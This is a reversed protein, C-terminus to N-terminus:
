DSDPNMESGGGFLYSAVKGLNKGDEGGVVGEVGRKVVESGVIFPAAAPCVVCVVGKATLKVVESNMGM